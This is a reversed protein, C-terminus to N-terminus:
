RPLNADALVEAYTVAIQADRPNLSFAQEILFRAEENDGGLSVVCQYMRLFTKAYPASEASQRFLALAETYQGREFFLMAQVYDAYDDEAAM